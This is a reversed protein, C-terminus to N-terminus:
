AAATFERADIDHAEADLVYGGYATRIGVAHRALSRRLRGIYTHIVGRAADPIETDWLLDALRDITVPQGAHLLLIALLLREQRRGGLLVPEGDQRAEFAGLLQFEM